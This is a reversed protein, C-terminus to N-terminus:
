EKANPNNIKIEKDPSEGSVFKNLVNPRTLAKEVSGEHRLLSLSLELAKESYLTVLPAKLGM